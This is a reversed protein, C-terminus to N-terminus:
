KCSLLHCVIRSIEELTTLDYIHLVVTDAKLLKSLKTLM